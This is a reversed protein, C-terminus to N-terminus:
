RAPTRAEIVRQVREPIANLFDYGSAQEIADVSTAYETWDHEGVGRQNPMLVAVVQTSGDVDSAAQGEALVVIIKFNAAPVAVGNGITPFPASFLGGAVVYLVAGRQALSRAHSELQEWPGANLEHLQPVINTFLFTQSNDEASDQRDASPCMHGRDYGSHLYDSEKVRYFRAPLALDSRFDNKRGVHGLHTRDLRWAVWNPVRKEPSYSLVFSREDLFYEDSPDADRPTGLAVHISSSVSAESGRLAPAVRESAPPAPAPARPSGPPSLPSPPLAQAPRAPQPGCQLPAFRAAVLLLVLVSFTGLLSHRPARRERSATM